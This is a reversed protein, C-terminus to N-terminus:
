PYRAAVYDRCFERLPSEKEGAGLTRIRVAAGERGARGGTLCVPEGYEMRVNEPSGYTLPLLLVPRGRAVVRSIVIRLLRERYPTERQFERQFGSFAAAFERGSWGIASACDRLAQRGEKTTKGADVRELGGDRTLEWLVWSEMSRRINRHLGPGVEGSDKFARYGPALKELRARIEEVPARGPCEVYLRGLFEPMCYYARSTSPIGGGLVLGIEGGRSLGSCIRWIIREWGTGNLICRSLPSRLSRLRDFGLLYRGTYGAYAGEEYFKLMDLAFYDMAIVVRPRCARGRVSRMAALAHRMMEVTLYLLAKTAPPHSTLCFVAPPRGCAKEVEGALRRAAGLNEADAEFDFTPNEGSISRFVKDAGANAWDAPAIRAVAAVGAGCLNFWPEFLTRALRSKSLVERGPRRHEARSLLLMLDEYRGTRQEM